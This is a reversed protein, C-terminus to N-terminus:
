KNSVIFVPKSMKHSHTSSSTQSRQEYVASKKLFIYYHATYSVMYPTHFYKLIMHCILGFSKGVYSYVYVHLSNKHAFVNKKNILLFTIIHCLKPM